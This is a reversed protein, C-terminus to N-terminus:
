TPETSGSEESWRSVILTTGRLEGEFRVRKGVLDDLIPDAFPNGGQRRLLLDGQETSLLVSERESKSGPAVRRRIVTGEFTETM